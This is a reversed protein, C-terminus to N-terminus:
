EGIRIGDSLENTDDDQIKVGKRHLLEGCLAIAEVLGDAAKGSKIGQVVKEVVHQWDSQAVKDNIGSDGIVMVRHELMSMFILIGTRDKTQFVEEEIFAQMARAKVRREVLTDGALLRRFFPILGLGLGILMAISIIGLTQYLGLSFWQGEIQYIGFIGALSLIVFFLGGRWIAESYDDSQEVYYPVIEGSTKSEANAVAQQIRDQDQKTFPTKAM